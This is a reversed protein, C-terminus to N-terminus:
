CTIKVKDEEDFRLKLKLCGGSFCESFNEDNKGTVKVQLYALPCSSLLIEVGWFM